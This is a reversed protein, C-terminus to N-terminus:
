LGVTFNSYRVKGPESSNTLKPPVIAHIFDVHKRHACLSSVHKAGRVHACQPKKFNRVRALTDYVNGGLRCVIIISLTFSTTTPSPATPLVQKSM